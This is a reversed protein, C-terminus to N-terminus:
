LLSLRLLLLGDFVCIYTGLLCCCCFFSAILKEFLALYHLCHPLVLFCDLTVWLIWCHGVSVVAVPGGGVDLHVFHIQGQRIQLFADLQVWAIHLSVQILSM